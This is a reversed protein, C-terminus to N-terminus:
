VELRISVVEAKGKKLDRDDELGFLRVPEDSLEGLLGFDAQSPAYGRLYPLDGIKENLAKPDM